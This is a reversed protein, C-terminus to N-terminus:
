AASLPRSGHPPADWLLTCGGRSHTAFCHGAHNNGATGVAGTTPAGTNDMSKMTATTMIAIDGPGGMAGTTPTAGLTPSDMCWRHNCWSRHNNSSWPRPNSMFPHRPTSSRRSHPSLWRPRPSSLRCQCGSGWPSMSGVRTPPAHCPSPLLLASVWSVLRGYSRASGNCPPSGGTHIHVRHHQVERGYIGRRSLNEREIKALTIGRFRPMGEFATVDRCPCTFAKYIFCHACVGSHTGARRSLVHRGPLPTGRRNSVVRM